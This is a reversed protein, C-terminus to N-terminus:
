LTRAADGANAIRKDAQATKVRRLRGIDPWPFVAVSARGGYRGAFDYVTLAPIFTCDGRNVSIYCDTRAAAIEALRNEDAPALSSGTAFSGGNQRGVLANRGTVLREDSPVLKFLGSGAHASRTVM